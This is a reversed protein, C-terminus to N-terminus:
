SHKGLPNTNCPGLLYGFTLVKEALLRIALRRSEARVCAMARKCSVRTCPMDLLCQLAAVICDGEATGPPSSSSISPVQLIALAHGLVSLSREARM